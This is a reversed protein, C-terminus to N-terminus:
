LCVINLTFYSIVNYMYCIFYCYNCHKQWHNERESAHAGVTERLRIMCQLVSTIFTWLPQFRVIVRPKFQLAAACIQGAAPSADDIFCHLLRSAVRCRRHWLRRVMRGCRWGSSWILQFKVYWLLRWPCWPYIIQPTLALVRYKKSRAHFWRCLGWRCCTGQFAWLESGAISISLM